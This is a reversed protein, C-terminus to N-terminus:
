GDRPSSRACRQHDARHPRPRRAGPLRRARDTRRRLLLRPPRGRSHVALGSIGVKELGAMLDDAMPDVVVAALQDTSTVLLPVDLARLSSVGLSQWARTPVLGLDLEGTMVKGAVVQDVDPQPDGAHWIPVIQVSGGSLADVVEAFHVVEAAGTDDPGDANGLTLKLVDAPATATGSTSPASTGGCAALTALALLAFCRPM